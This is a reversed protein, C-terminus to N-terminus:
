SSSKHLQSCVKCKFCSFKNIFFFFTYNDFLFFLVANFNRFNFDEVLFGGFLHIFWDSCIYGGFKCRECIIKTIAIGFGFINALKNFGQEWFFPSNKDSSYAIFGYSRICKTWFTRIINKGGSM